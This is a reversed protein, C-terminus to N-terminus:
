EAGGAAHVRARLLRYGLILFIAAVWEVAIWIVGAVRLFLHVFSRLPAAEADAVAYATELSTQGHAFSTAFFVCVIAFLLARHRM